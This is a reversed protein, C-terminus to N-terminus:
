VSIVKRSFENVNNIQAINEVIPFETGSLAMLDIKDIIIGFKYDKIMQGLLGKSYGVVPKNAALAHGFVGSSAEVNKYPILVFDSQHFLNNKLDNTVFSNEFIVQVKNSVRKLDDFITQLNTLTTPHDIKGALILTIGSQKESPISFLSRLIDFTGKRESLVGFHLFIKNMSPIAYKERINVFDNIILEPVPDPLFSFINTKFERNLYNCSEKDNLLFVEVLKKNKTLLLTQLYRRIYRLRESFGKRFDQRTFQSFLIGRILYKTRKLCLAPQFVNIHLLIVSNVNLKKAYKDMLNFQSFSKELLSGRMANKWELEEVCIIIIDERDKTLNAITEFQQSFFPNLVFYFKNKDPERNVLYKVLHEIYESHHGTLYLDFLLYIM